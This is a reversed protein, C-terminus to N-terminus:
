ETEYPFGLHEMLSKEISAIPDTPEVLRLVHQDPRIFLGGGVNLKGKDAFLREQEEFVFEFDRHAAALAVWVGKRKMAAELVKFREVWPDRSGVLLTFRDPMCLDLTSYQRSKVDQESFEKVYSVDVPPLAANGKIRIWAHPLRAGAM